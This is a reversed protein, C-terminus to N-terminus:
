WWWNAIGPCNELVFYILLGSPYGESSSCHMFAHIFEITHLRSRCPYFVTDLLFFLLLPLVSKKTLCTSKWLALMFNCWTLNRVNTIFLMFCNNWILFIEMITNQPLRWCSFSLSQTLYTHLIYSWCSLGTQIICLCNSDTNSKKTNM